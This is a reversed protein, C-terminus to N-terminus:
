VKAGQEPTRYFFIERAIGPGDLKDRMGKTYRKKLSISQIHLGAKGRKNELGNRGEGPLM